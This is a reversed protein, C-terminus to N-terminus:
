AILQKSWADPNQYRVVPASVKARMPNKTAFCYGIEILTERNRQKDEFIRNFVRNLNDLNVPTSKGLENALCEPIKLEQLFCYGDSLLDELEALGKFIECFEEDNINEM